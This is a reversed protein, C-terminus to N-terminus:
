RTTQQSLFEILDLMERQSMRQELGIPMTSIELAQLEDIESVPIQHTKGQNDGITLALDDEAIRVGSVIRGDLLLAAVTAYSPAINRSPELISELLHVRSFRAGIGTLDPGIYAGESEMRHCNLCLSKEANAFVERGRAVNGRNGLVHRMLQEHEAKSSRRRFRVHFRSTDGAGDIRVLIRNRGSELHADFRDADPQYVGTIDREFVSEGNLWITLAGHSSALFEIEGSEEVLVDTAALFVSNGDSPSRELEVHANAGTAIRSIGNTLAKSATVPPSQSLLGTVISEAIAPTQPEAVFWRIPVGINGQIRAIAQQLNNHENSDDRRSWASLTRVVATQLEADRSAGSAAVVGALQAPGGFRELYALSALQTAENPLGASAVDVARSDDLLRLARLCAGQLEDESQTALELIRDAQDTIQFDGSAAVAERLVETSTDNLLRAVSPRVDGNGRVTLARVASARVSSEQSDLKALLLADSEINNRTGLEDLVAALVPGDELGSAVTLLRTETDPDLGNSFQRLASLRNETSHARSRICSEFLPSADSAPMSSLAQLIGAVHDPDSEDNLWDSLSTAALPLDERLIRGLVFSRVMHDSDSLRRDLAAQIADTRDWSEFNAPRSGPRFGWYSWTAPLRCIRSLLDAYERRHAPSSASDVRTILGDAIDADSQEALAILALERLIEPASEPEPQVDLLELVAPWNDSRRLLQVLAHGLASDVAGLTVADRLWSAADAFRLRSLAIVTERMVRLDTQTTTLRALRSAVEQDGRGAQLSDEVIVPDTLDAVARIAQAIVRPDADSEALKLLEDVALAGHVQALIWIAHSQGNVGIQGEEIASRLDDLVAEGRTRLVSQAAVRKHYSESDLQLILEGTSSEDPHTSGHNGSAMESEIRYIRARGRKPRQGDCWDSIILSGDYDVVLDTPKFGYPDDAAGAAFDVEQVPAFGSGSQAFPYRVVSRGWECFYLSQRFEEPFATELYATGGASSGRGLDAMPPMVEEPREYYHYPYGHDSSFFCHCVRIMYAGGDNENDRVFVNLEADLAVDYINRLGTSFVHLDTGDTRCRLIGGQQFLLRDGEPRETDCGRDGLALYLWGDHGVVVGNACHLRNSNEEPPLGLGSLLDRREEAVGDGDSDRVRTLFPAHMVYVADGDFALGQISNFGEAFLTSQDAYGDGDTDALLRIEDRRIIEVGLGTMYDYAVYLTGPRPGLAIVSPYEVLPDCAFLTARFGEPVVLPPFRDETQPGVTADDALGASQVLFCVTLLACISRCRTQIHM